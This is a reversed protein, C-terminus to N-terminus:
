RTPGPARSSASTGAIGTARPSGTADIAAGGVPAEKFQFTLDFRRGVATLVNVTPPMIERGIGDGPLVAITTM